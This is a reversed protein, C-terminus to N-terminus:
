EYLFLNATQFLYNVTLTLQFVIILKELYKFFNIHLFNEQRTM